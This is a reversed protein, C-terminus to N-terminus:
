IGQLILVPLQLRGHQRVFPLWQTLCHPYVSSMQVVQCLLGPNRRTHQLYGRLLLLVNSFLSQLHAHLGQATFFHARDSPNLLLCILALNRKPRPGWGVNQPTVRLALLQFSQVQLALGQQCATHYLKLDMGLKQQSSASQPGKQGAHVIKCRGDVRWTVDSFSCSCTNQPM